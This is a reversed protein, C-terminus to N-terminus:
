RPKNEFMKVFHRWILVYFTAINTKENQRFHIIDKESVSCPTEMEQQTVSQVPFLCVSPAYLIQKDGLPTTWKLPILSVVGGRSDSHVAWCNTQKYALM